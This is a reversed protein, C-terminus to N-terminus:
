TYGLRGKEIIYKKIFESRVIDSEKFEVYKFCDMRKLIELISILGRRDIEKQLDTQRYDGCLILKSNKGVRTIVSDLEGFVANQIEDVIIICNDLTIGRIFSTSMFEIYKKTKLISYADGRTFLESVIEKYPREYVEIKEKENGPMFGIERTPVASRIIIIKKYQSDDSLVTHLSKYLALFSKGTGAFGHLILYDNSDFYNFAKTQNPTIPEIKKLQTFLGGDPKINQNTIKREKKSLRKLM